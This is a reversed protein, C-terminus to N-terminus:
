HRADCGLTQVPQYATVADAAVAGARVRFGRRRPSTAAPRSRFILAQVLMRDAALATSCRSAPRSPSRATWTSARSGSPIACSCRRIARPTAWCWCRSTAPLSRSPPIAPRTAPRRSRRSAPCSSRRRARLAARGQRHRRLHAARQPPLGCRRGARRQAARRGDLLGMGAGAREIEANPFVLAGDKTKIGNIHDPHFHSILVTDIAKPAIGAAALNASSLAREGRDARRQRHRDPRAQTGTNVLLATFPLPMKDTPLFADAM